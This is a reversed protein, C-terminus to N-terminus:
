EDTQEEGPTSTGAATRQLYDVIANALKIKERQTQAKLYASGWQQMAIRANAQGGLRVGNEAAQRLQSKLTENFQQLPRCTSDSIHAKM